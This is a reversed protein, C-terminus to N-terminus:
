VRYLLIFWINSITATAVLVQSVKEIANLLRPQTTTTVQSVKGITRLLRKAARGCQSSQHRRHCSEMWRRQFLVEVRNPHHFHFLPQATDHVNMNHLKIVNHCYRKYPAKSCISSTPTRNAFRWSFNKVWVWFMHKKRCAWTQCLSVPFVILRSELLEVLWFVPRGWLLPWADISFLLSLIVLPEGRLATTASTM